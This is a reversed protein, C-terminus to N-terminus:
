SCAPTSSIDVVGTVVTLAVLMAPLPSREDGRGRGGDGSNM